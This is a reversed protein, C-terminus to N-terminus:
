GSASFEIQHVGSHYCRVLCMVFTVLLWEVVAAKSLVAVTDSTIMMLMIIM